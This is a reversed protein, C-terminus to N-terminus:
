EGACDRPTEKFNLGLSGGAATSLPGLEDLTPTGWGAGWVGGLSKSVSPWHKTSSAAGPVKYVAEGGESLGESPTKM